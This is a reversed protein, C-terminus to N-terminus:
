RRGRVPGQENGPFSPPPGMPPEGQPGRELQAKQEATLIKALQEDVTAQLKVLAQKQSSSLQLEDQLFDPLVTGPKMGPGFGAGMRGMGNPGGPGMGGPGMGGPGMGRAGTGGGRAGKTSDRGSRENSFAAELETRTVRKDKNADARQLLSDLRSDNVEEQTIAGDEDADKAMLREVTSATADDQIPQQPRAQGNRNRNREPPQGWSPSILLTGLFLLAFGNRKMM